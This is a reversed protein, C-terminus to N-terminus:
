FVFSREILLARLKNKNLDYNEGLRRRAKADQRNRTAEIEILRRDVEPGSLGSKSNGIHFARCESCQYIELSRGARRTAGARRRKFKKLDSEAKGWNLYPKKGTWCTPSESYKM